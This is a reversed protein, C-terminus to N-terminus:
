QSITGATGYFGSGNIYPDSSTIHYHYIGNPYDTTVSTHGHFADLQANTILQGNEQPGYVPFGDLLFGLLADKGKSTTLYYPEVHYHYQGQQQPHGNYQDFSNIENTLPSGGAAYQNFFPVGNLSIGIAGMPTSAHNTAVTPNLPIKFTLNFQAIRNPNTVYNPNTGNYAEYLNSWQTGQYYTSKHDPLAKSKIVVFNGEVYMDTAGYIKKYVDPVATTITSEGGSKKCAISIFAIVAIACVLIPKMNIM